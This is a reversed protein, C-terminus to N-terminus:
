SIITHILTRKLCQDKDQINKEDTQTEEKVFSKSELMKHKHENIM